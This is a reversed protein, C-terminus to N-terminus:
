MGTKKYNINELKCKKGSPYSFREKDGRKQNKNLAFSLIKYTM